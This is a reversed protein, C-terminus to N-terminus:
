PTAARHSGRHRAGAPGSRPPESRRDATRRRAVMAAEHQQKFVLYGIAGIAVLPWRRLSGLVAAAAARGAVSRNGASAAAMAATGPVATAEAVSDATNLHWAVAAQLRGPLGGSSVYAAEHQAASLGSDGQMGASQLRHEIFSRCQERSLPRIQTSFVRGENVPRASVDALASELEPRGVLM